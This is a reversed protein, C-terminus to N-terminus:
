DYKEAFERILNLLSEKEDSNEKTDELDDYSQELHAMRDELLEQEFGPYVAKFILFAKIELYHKNGPSGNEEFALMSNELVQEPTFVTSGCNVFIGKSVLFCVAKMYDNERFLKRPEEAVSGLARFFGSFSSPYYVWQILVGEATKFPLDYTQQSENSM